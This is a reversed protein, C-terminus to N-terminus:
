AKGVGSRAAVDAAGGAERAECLIAERARRQLLEGDFHLRKESCAPLRPAGYADCPVEDDGIRGIRDHKGQGGIGAKSWGLKAIPVLNGAKMEDAAIAKVSCMVSM